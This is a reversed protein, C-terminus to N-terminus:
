INNYVARYLPRYSTEEVSKFMGTCTLLCGSITPSLAEDIQLIDRPAFTYVARYLPRYPLGIM